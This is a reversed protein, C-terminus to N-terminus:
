LENNFRIVYYPYHMHSIVDYLLYGYQPHYMIDGKANGAVYILRDIKYKTYYCPFQNKYLISYDISATIKGANFREILYRNKKM